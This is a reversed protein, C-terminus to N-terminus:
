SQSEHLSQHIRDRTERLIANVKMSGVGRQIRREGYRNKLAKGGAAALLNRTETGYSKSKAHFVFTDIAIMLGFGADSARFCFDDEEGYGRPFLEEDFLGVTDIVDRKIMLCFGNLLQVRPRSLGQTARAAVADFDGVTLGAPLDNIAFKGSKNTVDPVSQWTAANSLPGVIGVDEHSKFVEALKELWGMPVITDSNLLVILRASSQSIGRNVAKTYGTAETNRFVSLEPHQTMRDLYDATEGDSGDDIIIIRQHATNTRSALVSHLCREVDPLANHVCIIIDVRDDAIRDDPM